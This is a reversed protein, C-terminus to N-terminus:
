NPRKLGELAQQAMRSADSDKYTRIL